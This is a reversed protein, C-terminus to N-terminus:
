RYYSSQLVANYPRLSDLSLRIFCILRCLFYASLMSSSTFPSISFYMLTVFSCCNFVFAIHGARYSLFYGTRITSYLIIKGYEGGNVYGQVRFQLLFHLVAFQKNPFTGFTSLLVNAIIWENIVIHFFPMMCHKDMFM